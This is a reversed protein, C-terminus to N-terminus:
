LENRSDLMVEFDINDYYTQGDLCNLEVWVDGDYGKSKEKKKEYCEKAFALNNTACVISGGEYAVFEQVIYIM